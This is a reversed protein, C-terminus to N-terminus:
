LCNKPERKKVSRQVSRESVVLFPSSRRRGDYVMYIDAYIRIYGDNESFDTKM